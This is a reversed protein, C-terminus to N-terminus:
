DQQSRLRIVAASEHDLAIQTYGVAVVYSPFRQLLEVPAGPVLGLAMLKSREHASAGDFDVVLGRGGVRLDALRVSSKRAPRTEARREGSAGPSSCESLDRRKRCRMAAALVSLWGAGASGRVPEM